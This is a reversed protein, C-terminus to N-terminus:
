GEQEKPIDRIARANRQQSLDLYEMHSAIVVLAKEATGHDIESDAVVYFKNKIAWRGTDTKELLYGTSQGDRLVESSDSLILNNLGAERM